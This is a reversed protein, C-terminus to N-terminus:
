LVQIVPNDCSLEPLLDQVTVTSLLVKIQLTEIVVRAIMKLCLSLITHFDETVIAVWCVENSPKHVSCRRARCFWWLFHHRCHCDRVDLSSTFCYSSDQALLADSCCEPGLGCNSWDSWHWVLLAMACCFPTIYQMGQWSQTLTYMPSVPLVSCTRCFSCLLCQMLPRVCSEATAAWAWWSSWSM